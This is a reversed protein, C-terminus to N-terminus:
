RGVYQPCYGAFMAWVYLSADQTTVGSDSAVTSIEYKINGKLWQSKTRHIGMHELAANAKEQDVMGQCLAAGAADIDADTTTSALINTSSLTSRVSAAQEDVVTPPASRVTVTSPSPLVQAVPPASPVAPSPTSVLPTSVAIVKAPPQSTRLAVMGGVIIIVGVIIAAPTMWGRKPERPPANWSDQRM